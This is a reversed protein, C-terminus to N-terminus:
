ISVEKISFYINLSIRIFSSFKSLYTESKSLGLFYDCTSRLACLETNLVDIYNKVTKSAEDRSAEEIEQLACQICSSHISCQSQSQDSFNNRIQELTLAFSSNDDYIRKHVMPSLYSFTVAVATRIYNFCKERSIQSFDNM